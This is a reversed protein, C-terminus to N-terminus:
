MREGSSAALLEGVNLARFALLIIRRYEARCTIDMLARECRRLQVPSFQVSSTGFMAFPWNLQTCDRRRPTFPRILMSTGLQAQKGDAFQILAKDKKNFM